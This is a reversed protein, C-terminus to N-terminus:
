LRLLFIKSSSASDRNLLQCESLQRLFEKRAVSGTPGNDHKCSGAM